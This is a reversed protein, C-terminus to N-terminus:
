PKTYYIYAICPMYFLSWCFILWQLMADLLINLQHMGSSSFFFYFWKQNNFLPIFTLNTFTTYFNTSLPFLQHFNPFVHYFNFTTYFNTCIASLYYFNAFSPLFNKFNTFNTYFKTFLPLLQCFTTSPPLILFPLKLM